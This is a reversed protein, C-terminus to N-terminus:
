EDTNMEEYKKGKCWGYDETPLYDEIIMLSAGASCVHNGSGIPCCNACNYCDWQAKKKGKM